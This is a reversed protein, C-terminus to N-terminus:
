RPTRDPIAFPKQLNEPGGTRAKKKHGGACFFTKRYLATGKRVCFGKM